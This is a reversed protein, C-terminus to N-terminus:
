SLEKQLMATVTQPDAKGQSLKRVEGVFLGMLGKKGKKYEIVKEPMKTLVTRIWNNLEDADSTQFLNLNKAM